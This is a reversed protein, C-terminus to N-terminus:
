RVGRTETISTSHFLHLQERLLRLLGFADDLVKAVSPERDRPTLRSLHRFSSRVM